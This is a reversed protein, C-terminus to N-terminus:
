YEPPEAPPRAAPAAGGTFLRKFGDYSCLEHVTFESVGHRVLPLAALQERAETINVCELLIVARLDAATFWIERIVGSQHLDWVGAAEARLLDPLDPRRLGPLERELALIRM